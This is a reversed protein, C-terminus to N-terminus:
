SVPIYNFYNLVSELEIVKNIICFIM